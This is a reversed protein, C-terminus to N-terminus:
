DHEWFRTDFNQTKKQNKEPEYFTNMTCFFGIPTKKLSKESERFTFLNDLTTTKKVSTFTSSSNDNWCNNIDKKPESQSNVFFSGKPNKKHKRKSERFMFSLSNVKMPSMLNFM